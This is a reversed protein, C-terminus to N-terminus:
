HGYVVKGGGGGVQACIAKYKFIVWWTAQRKPIFVGIPPRPRREGGKKNEKKERQKTFKRKQSLQWNNVVGKGRAHGATTGTASRCLKHGNGQEVVSGCGNKGTTVWYGSNESEKRGSKKGRGHEKDEQQIRKRLGV